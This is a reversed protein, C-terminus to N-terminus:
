LKSGFVYLRRSLPATFFAFPTGGAFFRIRPGWLSRMSRSAVSLGRAFEGLAVGFDVDTFVAETELRPASAMAADVPALCRLLADRPNSVHSVTSTSVFFRRFTLM